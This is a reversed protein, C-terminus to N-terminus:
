VEMIEKVEYLWSRFALHQQLRRTQEERLQQIRVSRRRILKPVQEDLAFTTRPLEEPIFLEEVDPVAVDFLPNERTPTFPLRLLETNIFESLEPFLVCDAM